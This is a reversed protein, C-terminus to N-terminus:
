NKRLYVMVNRAVRNAPASASVAEAIAVAWVTWFVAGATCGCLGAFVLVVVVWLVVVATGSEVPAGTAACVSVVEV